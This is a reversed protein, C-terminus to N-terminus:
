QISPFSDIKENYYMVIYYADTTDVEGNGDVDAALLQDEALDMKENYYMVILYADTTDIEGNGDVDGLVASDTVHFTAEAIGDTFVIEMTYEGSPLTVLYESKLTVITSGETVTYNAPDLLEGNLWVEVFLTIEVDVRIAVPAESEGSWEIGNGDLVEYRILPDVYDATYSHGCNTCTYTTYGQEEYTPATVVSEYNHGIADVYSDTYSDGCVTCTHTTYGQETCTPATIASEYTHGLECPDYAVWNVNYGLNGMTENTWTENGYPYHLTMQIYDSGFVHSESNFTPADGLFYVTSLKSCAFFAVVGIHTVNKPITITPLESCCFFARGGISTLGEPLTVSTLYRCNNFLANGITTVGPEVIVTKVMSRDWPVEPYDGWWEGSADNAYDWTSGVGSITLTGAEDMGWTVQDGCFGGISDLVTVEFSASVGNELTATITATGYNMAVFGAYFSSDYELKLISNDSVTWVTEGNFFPFGATIELSFECTSGKLMQTSGSMCISEPMSVIDLFVDIEIDADDYDYDVVELIYTKGAEMECVVGNYRGAYIGYYWSDEEVSVGNDYIYLRPSPIFLDQPAEPYSAYFIYLGSEEPTFSYSASEGNHVLIHENFGCSIQKYPSVPVWTLTGGYDCNIKDVWTENNEPYYVTATINYFSGEEWGCMSPADGLFVVNTLKGCSGFARTEIRRVTESITVTELNSCYSFAYDKIDTVGESIVVSTLQSQSFSSKGIVTIGNPVTYSGSRGAPFAVLMNDHSFMVGEDSYYYKNGPNVNIANLSSCEAFLNGQMEEFSAPITIDTINGCRSFASPYAGRVGEPITYSGGKGGPFVLINDGNKHFLVGDIDKYVKNASDVTIRQLSTAGDFPNNEIMTVSAPIVIESLSTCQSFADIGIYTVSKPITIDSLHTCGCFAAMPIYTLADPIDVSSLNTCRYFSFEGINAVGPEIVIKCISERHEGWPPLDDYFYDDMDGTGSITMTGDETLVWTLNQGCTGSAIVGEEARAPMPMWALMMALILLVSLLKKIRM